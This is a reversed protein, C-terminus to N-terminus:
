RFFKGYELKYPITGDYGAIVYRVFWYVILLLIIILRYTSKVKANKLEYDIKPIILIWYPLFYYSIRYGYKVVASSCYFALDLFILFILLNNLDKNQIKRFFLSIVILMVFKISAYYLRFNTKKGEDLYNTYESFLPLKAFLSSFNDFLLYIMFIIM